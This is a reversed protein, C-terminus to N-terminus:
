IKILGDVSIQVMAPQGRSLGDTQRDVGRRAITVAACVGEDRSGEDRSRGVKVRM